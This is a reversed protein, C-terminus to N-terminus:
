IQEVGLDGAAVEGKSPLTFGRVGVVGDAPFLVVDLDHVLLLAAVLYYM